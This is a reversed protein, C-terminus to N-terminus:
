VKNNDQNEKQTSSFQSLDAMGGLLRLHPILQPFDAHKRVLLIKEALDALSMAQRWKERHDVTCDCSEPNQRFQELETLTLAAEEFAGHPAVAIGHQQLISELEWVLREWESAGTNM